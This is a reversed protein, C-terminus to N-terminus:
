RSVRILKWISESAARKVRTLWVMNVSLTVILIVLGFFERTQEIWPTTAEMSQTLSAANHETIWSLVGSENVFLFVAYASYVIIGAIYMWLNYRGKIALFCLAAGYLYIPMWVYPDPDNYQVATCYIFLVILLANLIKM